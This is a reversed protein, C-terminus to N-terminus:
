TKAHPTHVKRDITRLDMPRKVITHYDPLWQPDVPVFFAELEPHQCAILRLIARCHDRV